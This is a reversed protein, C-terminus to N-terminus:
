GKPPSAASDGASATGSEGEGKGKDESGKPPPNSPTAPRAFELYPISKTSVTKDPGSQNHQEMAKAGLSVLAAMAVFGMGAGLFYGSLSTTTRSRAAIPEADSYRQALTLRGVEINDRRVWVVLVISVVLFVWGPGLLALSWTTLKPSVHDWFVITGGLFATANTVLLRYFASAEANVSKFIETRRDEMLTNENM